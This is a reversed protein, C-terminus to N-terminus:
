YISRIKQHRSEDLVAAKSGFASPSQWGVIEKEDVPRFNHGHHTSPYVEM